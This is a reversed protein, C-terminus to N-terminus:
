PLEIISPPHGEIAQQWAVQLGQELQLTFLPTNFLPQTRKNQALKAKLAKLEEPHTALHYALSEYEELSYTLLEPLDIANLLSASVRSAFHSGKICVGPLGAWLADSTTTHGNCHHTDLFLDALQLRALHEDKPIGLAFILREPDVGRKLAEEKLNKQIFPKEIYLWLVSNPLRKLLNMWCSFLDPDIKLSSNFSTFVFCNRPLKFDDRTIFKQSIPQNFDNVQYCSPMYLFKESYYPAEEPPSVIKDTIVYDFFDAGSTGPFGLYTMQIPAPRYACIELRTDKTHGKLDILIDVEDDFIKQAAAKDDLTSIDVFQTCDKEIRKRYHSRDDHGYSYININFKSKDHLSFLSLMLHATAHNHLDCSLYGLTLKEKAEIRYKSDFAAGQQLAKSRYQAVEHNIKVDMVRMINNFATEHTLHISDEIEKARDWLCATRLNTYLSHTIDCNTSKLLLAREYLAVAELCNGADTELHALLCLTETHNSNIELAKNYYRRSEVARKEIGNILGLQHYGEFSNPNIEVVKHFQDKAAELSKEEKYLLGLNFYAEEYNPKLQIAKEFNLVAEQLNGLSNHCIGLYNYIEPVLPKIEQAKQFHSIAQTYQDSMALLLGAKDSATFIDQLDQSTDVITQYVKVAQDIKGLRTLAFALNFSYVPGKEPKNIIAKEIYGIAEELRKQQLRVAGLLNLTDAHSENQSLTKQCLDETEQLKGQQFLAVGEKWNADFNM